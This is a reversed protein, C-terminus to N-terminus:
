IYIDKRVPLEYKWDSIEWLHCCIQQVKMICSIIILVSTVTYKSIQKVKYCKGSNNRWIFYVTSKCWDVNVCMNWKLVWCNFYIKNRLKFYHEHTYLITGIYIVYIYVYLNLYFERLLFVRLTINRLYRPVSSQIKCSM